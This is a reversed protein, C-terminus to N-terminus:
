EGRYYYADAAGKLFIYGGIMISIMLSCLNWTNEYPIDVTVALLNIVFNGLFALVGFLGVSIMFSFLALLAKPNM